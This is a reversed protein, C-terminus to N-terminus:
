QAWMQALDLADFIDTEDGMYDTTLLEMVPFQRAQSAPILLHYTTQDKYTFRWLAISRKEDVFRIALEFPKGQKPREWDYAVLNFTRIAKSAGHSIIPAAIPDDMDFTILCSDTLVFKPVDNFLVWQGQYRYMKIWHTPLGTARPLPKQSLYKLMGFYTSGIPATHSFDISDFRVCAKKEESEAADNLYYIREFKNKPDKEVKVVRTSASLKPQLYELSQAQATSSVLSMSACLWALLITKLMRSHNLLYFALSM